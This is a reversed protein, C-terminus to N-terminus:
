LRGSRLGGLPDGNARCLPEHIVFIDGRDESWQNAAVIGGFYCQDQLWDRDHWTPTAYERRLCCEPTAHSFDTRGTPVLMGCRAMKARPNARFAAEFRELYTPFMDDDDDFFCVFDGTVHQLGRNRGYSASARESHGYVRIRPDAFSYGGDGANDVVILEWNTYTQARITELTRLITHCRRYTSMVISIKPRSERSSAGRPRDLSTAQEQPMVIWAQDCEGSEGPINLRASAHWGAQSIPAMIDAVAWRTEFFSEGVRRTFRSGESAPAVYFDLIVARRAVRIAESVTKEMLWQPQHELVHRLLVVDFVSSRIPLAASDARCLPADPFRRRAVALMELTTDIGFWSFCERRSALYLWLAGPGCGVDLLNRGMSTAIQAIRWRASNRVTRRAEDSVIKEIREIGWRHWNEWDRPRQKSRQGTGQPAEGSYRELSGLPGTWRLTRGADLQDRLRSNARANSDDMEPRPHHLHALRVPLSEISTHRALRGWFERDEWGWGRFREDHGGLQRYRRPEVWICGGSSDSFVQGQYRHAVFDEMPAEMRDRIARETSAGDLYVIETYPRLARRGSRFRELASRLFQPPPLLDGDILCLAVTAPSLVAGVNFAWGRNYPGPNFAFAYRDVLPALVSELRPECDQEVAVIRYRWRELDQLNLAWLCARANRLRDAEDSGARLGVVVSLERPEREDREFLERLSREIADPPVDDVQSGAMAARTTYWQHYVIGAYESGLYVPESISGRRQAAVRELGHIQFGRRKIEVSIREGVDFRSPRDKEDLFSLGFDDLTQREVMLCSPHIYDRHHPIGAVKVTATLKSRLQRLWDDCMPFADSDLTVIIPSRTRSRGLELAPGHGLNTDAPILDIDNRRSLVRLWEQTGDKSANDVVVLRASEGASRRLTNLTSLRTMPLANHAAILICYTPDNSGASVSVRADQAFHAPVPPRTRPGPSREQQRFIVDLATQLREAYTHRALRRACSRRIRDYRASDRLLETLISALEELSNFAPLDPCLQVREARDETVVLAGCAAAEYVRPNLSTAPISQRNFHHVQRFINLVIRTDRYLDATRGAPVNSSLTLAQLHNTRWPGGVVYSLLGRRGLAELIEERRTNQGGVFGVSHKRVGGPRYYHRAPDYCTPLYYANRHRSLTAPDNVFVYDFSSSFGCTDDVEYPEDLLWVASRVGNFADRWRRCFNRGHVVLLLDPSFRRIKDPLDADDWYASAQPVRLSRAASSLGDAFVDGCSLFKYNVFFVRRGPETEGRAAMGAAFDEPTMKPIVRLRSEASLNVLEVGRSTSYDYIAKYQADIQGFETALPHRGTAAFFHHETFDVGILGIRVAGMHLALCLALYPSNRTYHLVNPDSLDTGGFRGLRIRVIRPHPIGLDLQTFIASAGSGEVFRFRDGAFQQRPNLVVLYDPQFLRGVDNVGITIFREPSVIRSLSAGCGCVLITEGAHYNRFERLERPLPSGAGNGRAVSLPRTIECNM